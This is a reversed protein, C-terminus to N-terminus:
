FRYNYQVYVTEPDSTVGTRELFSGRYLKSYGVLIHQHQSLRVNMFLDLEQGVDVGSAGTPDSRIPVGGANFLPANASALDFIHYQALLTLWPRPNTILHFNLDHINQRGVLDIFGLYYHGFPFLQNFTGFNNDNPDQDGSAYDYYAWVTPNFPLDTFHWGIGGTAYAAGVDLGARKGVQGGGELDWLLKKELDGYYRGGLTVIDGVTGRGRREDSLNLAFLDIATGERIKYTNFIGMFDVGGDVSDFGPFEPIVPQVFFIDTDLKEGHRFARVGQFTRRTNAWDLASILRQSGLTMEQRGGRVYVPAGQVEGLKLEAFANLLDVDTQDIGLAPLNENYSDAYIGEVFLRVQDQYWLDGYVRTRFLDFNNNRGSFRSNEENRYQYRIEGGAGFLWCDGEGFKIRKYRDSYDFQKNNPDDLYRFDYNFFSAPNLGLQGYPFMPPKETKIGQLADFLFFSRPGKGGPLNFNGPRQVPFIPPVKSLDCKKEECTECPCPTPAIAPDYVRPTPPTFVPDTLVTESAPMAPAEAAPMEIIPTPEQSQASSAILVVVGASGFWKRLNLSRM